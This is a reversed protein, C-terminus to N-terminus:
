IRITAGRVKICGDDPLGGKGETEGFCRSRGRWTKSSIGSSIGVRTM